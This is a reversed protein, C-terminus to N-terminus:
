DDLIEIVVEGMGIIKCCCALRVQQETIQLLELTEEEFEGVPNLQDWGSRIKILDQGCLGRRCSYPLGIDLQLLIQLITRAAPVDGSFLNPEIILRGM